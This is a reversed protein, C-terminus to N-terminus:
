FENVALALVTSRLQVLKDGGIEEGSCRFSDLGDECMTHHPLKTLVHMFRTSSRICIKSGKPAQGILYEFVLHIYTIKNKETV